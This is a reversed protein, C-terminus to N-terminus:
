LEVENLMPSQMDCHDVIENDVEGIVEEGNVLKVILIM